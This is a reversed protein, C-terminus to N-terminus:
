YRHPRFRSIIGQLRTRSLIQQMMSHLREQVDATINPVVYQEAVRQPEIIIVTESRYQPSVFFSLALVLAWALFLPLVLWWRRRRVIIWYEELTRPRKEGLHSM